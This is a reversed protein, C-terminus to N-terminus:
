LSVLERPSCRQACCQQATYVQEACAELAEEIVLAERVVLPHYTACYSCHYEPVYVQVGGFLRSVLPAYGTVEEIIGRYHVCREPYVDSKQALREYRLREIKEEIEADQQCYAIAERQTQFTIDCYLKQFAIDGDPADADYFRHVKLPYWKGAIPAVTYDTPLDKISM